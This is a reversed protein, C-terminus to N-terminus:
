RYDNEKNYESNRDKTKDLNGPIEMSTSTVKADNEKMKKVDCYIIKTNTEFLKYNKKGSLLACLSM